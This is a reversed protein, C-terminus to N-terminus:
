INAFNSKQIQIIYAKISLNRFTCYLASNLKPLNAMLTIAFNLDSSFKITTSYKHWYYFFATLSFVFRSDGQEKKEQDTLRTMNEAEYASLMEKIVSM